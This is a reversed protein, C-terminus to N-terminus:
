VLARTGDWIWIRGNEDQIGEVADFIVGDAMMTTYEEVIVLNIEARSQIFILNHPSCEVVHLKSM